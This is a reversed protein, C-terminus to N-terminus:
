KKLKDQYYNYVLGVVCLLVAYSAITLLATTM